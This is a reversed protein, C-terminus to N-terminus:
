IRERETQTGRSVHDRYSVYETYHHPAYRGTSSDVDNVIIGVFRGGVARLRDRAQRVIERATGQGKVVFLVGDAERALVLPDTVALAPPSDLLVFDYRARAWRLVARMQDSGLLEAPNAPPPGAPLVSVNTIGAPSRILEELQASGTLVNSLGAANDIGLAAHCDPRRLDADILLVRAGSLGLAVALNLTAVTKGEHPRSSTVLIVRWPTAGQAAYLIATRLVRFAESAVSRPRHHVVLELTPPGNGNTNAIERPADGLYGGADLAFNPVTALAPAHLVGEAEASDKLTDDFRECLVAVLVAFVLGAALGLALNVSVSPRAPYRPVEARQVVHVNDQTMQATVFTEKQQEVLSDYLARSSTVEAELLKYAAEAERLEVASAEQETLKAQLSEENLRAARLRAELSAVQKGVEAALREKLAREQTRLEQVRPHNPGLRMDIAAQEAGVQLLALRLKQVVPEDLFYHLADTRLEAVFEHRTELAIREGQARTLLESQQAMRQAVVKEEQNLTINPHKRAFATLAAEAAGLKAKAEGVHVQLFERATVEAALRAEELAEKYAEVHAGALFASLRANPTTFRIEILETSRVDRVGLYSM